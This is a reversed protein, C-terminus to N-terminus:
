GTLLTLVNASQQNALGLLAIAASLLVNQRNLEATEAAYDTDAIVSKADTLGSKAGNLSNILPNIQFKQFGGVRGQAEAVDVAAKAIIKQATAVDNTLSASGGSVLDSLM